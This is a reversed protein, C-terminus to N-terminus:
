KYEHKLRLRRRTNNDCRALHLNRDVLDSPIFSRASGVTKRTKFYRYLVAYVGAIELYIGYQRCDGLRKEYKTRLHAGFRHLTLFSM